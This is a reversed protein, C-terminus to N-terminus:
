ILFFTEFKVKKGHFLSKFINIFFNENKKTLKKENDIVFLRKTIILNDILKKSIKRSESGFLHKYSNTQKNFDKFLNLM